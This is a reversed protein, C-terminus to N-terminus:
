RAGVMRIDQEVIWVFDYSRMAPQDFFWANIIHSRSWFDYVLTGKGFPDRELVSKPFAKAVTEHDVDRM